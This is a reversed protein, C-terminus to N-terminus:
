GASRVTEAHQGDAAAAQETILQVLRPWLAVPLDHGMGPILELRAGPVARATAKGGSVNVMKDDTGHVVLTPVRVDALAKTRNGSAIIAALQRAAGTRDTSRDFSAGALERTAAVDREFGPSGVVDFLAVTRTMATERDVAPPKVLFPLVKLAPRGMRQAGTTSMISVLTRVKAPHRIAVTQAIMGGMSVGVIHASAIGLGDLLGVADDAMDELTYAPAKIRRTVLEVVSPPAHGTFHTSRGVDRNDYRIVHFGEAALLECFEPRWALMQTGLGMVLLITPDAPDGFSEYCLEVDGARLFQETMGKRYEAPFLAAAM